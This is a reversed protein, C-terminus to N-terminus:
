DQEPESALLLAHALECDPEHGDSDLASCAPCILADGHQDGQWEMARLVDVLVRILEDKTM